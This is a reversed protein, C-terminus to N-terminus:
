EANHLSPDTKRCKDSEFREIIKLYKIKEIHDDPYTLLIKKWDSIREPTMKQLSRNNQEM